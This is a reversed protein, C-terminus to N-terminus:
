APTRQDLAAEVDAEITSTALHLIRLYELDGREGFHVERIADYTRRFTLAPFMEERYMYRAFAGPRRVLSCIVHWYDVCHRHRGRLLESASAQRGAHAEPASHQAVLGDTRPVGTM